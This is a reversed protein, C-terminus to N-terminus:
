KIAWTVCTIFRWLFEYGATIVCFLFVTNCIMCSDGREQKMCIWNKVWYDLM